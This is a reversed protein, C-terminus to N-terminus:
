VGDPVKTKIHVTYPDVVEVDQITDVLGANPAPHSPDLQRTISFKVSEGTFPDGNHFVVNKRLHFEWTLDDIRQWSEALAPQIRGQADMRILGDYIQNIINESSADFEQHPDLSVPDTVDNVVILTKDAAVAEPRLETGPAGKSGRSEEPDRAEPGPSRLPAAWILSGFGIAAVIFGLASWKLHIKSQFM